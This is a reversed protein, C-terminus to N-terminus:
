QYGIGEAVLFGDQRYCFEEKGPILHTLNGGHITKICVQIRNIIGFVVVMGNANFSYVAYDTATTM